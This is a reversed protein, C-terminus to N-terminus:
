DQEELLLKDGFGVVRITQTIKADNVAIKLDEVWHGNRADFEIRYNGAPLVRDWAHGGDHIIPLLQKRQDLSWYGPDKATTGAESVWYNVDFVPGDPAVLWLQFPGNVNKAESPVTKFYCFHWGGMIMENLDDKLAYASLATILGIAVFGAFWFTKANGNTAPPWLAIIAGMLGLVIPGLINIVNFIAHKM